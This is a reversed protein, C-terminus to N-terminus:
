RDPRSGDLHERWVSAITWFADFNPIDGIPVSSGPALSGKPRCLLRGQDTELAGIEDWKYVTDRCRIGLDRGVAVPGFQVVEGRAFANGADELVSPIVARAIREGVEEVFPTNDTSLRVQEGDRLTIDYAYGRGAGILGAIPHHSCSASVSSIEDWRATRVEGGHAWAIGEEFVAARGRARIFWLAGWLVGFFLFLGGFVYWERRAGGVGAGALLHTSAAAGLLLAVVAVRWYLPWGRLRVLVVPEGLHRVDTLKM